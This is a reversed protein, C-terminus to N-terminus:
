KKLLQEMMKKANDNDPNLKLSKKYNRIAREKDGIKMYAEALSDWANSSNPYMEVSMEFAAIAENIKNSNLFRYGMANFENEDFYKNDPNDKKLYQYVELGKKLGDSLICLEIEYSASENIIKEVSKLKNQVIAEQPRIKLFEVYLEKAKEFKGESVNMQALRFLGDLSKPYLELTYELIRKVEENNGDERLREGAETLIRDSINVPYGLKESLIQYYKKIDDLRGIIIDKPLQYGSFLTKL